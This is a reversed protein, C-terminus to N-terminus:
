KPLHLEYGQCPGEIVEDLLSFRHFIIRRKPIRVRMYTNVEYGGERFNPDYPNFSTIKLAKGALNELRKPFVPKDKLFKGNKWMNTLELEPEHVEKRALISYTKTDPSAQIIVLDTIGKFFGKKSLGGKWVNINSWNRIIIAFIGTGKTM